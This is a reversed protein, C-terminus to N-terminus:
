GSVAVLNIGIIEQISDLLESEQYPKGLYQNVGIERARERHKDGTRSTIMIIPVHCLREDNRMHTALEFGDMRPMEIDLLVMDPLTEQLQGMADVGDKATLVQYGNRELLRSTVKRVTISDDVVMVLLRSDTQPSFGPDAPQARRNMRSVAVMDLILVVRGDGLITAGSVGEVSSFQTGLPKIVVERNGLLSEVQMGIRQDGIRLLLVPVQQRMHQLNMGGTGLLTGLHKLRYENGAYEFRQGESQYCVILEEPFVRVVGEISALPVFFAEEGATVLLAQNIALTYPLRVTFVAGKGAESEIHLSGGLQKVESNVVDMGVGRGSIQTVEGATSFGTTLIFQMVEHDTLGADASMLGREIARERIMALNLGAGDDSLRLIIEPGERDFDIHITGAEPKDNRVRQEPYEIGHAIANRLMHELPAVFRDAVSRDIEGDAGHLELEVKKNLERATQRVIRRLRPALGAFPVMRTRILSEQLDTNVRSQQLLLTEADRTTQEMIEQLSQLDSISEILSRSLQQLNSYRDMELPDFGENRGDSEQEFRYLIQAETEMELQRLQDRLRSITTDLEGLSFRYNSVQQEMRSRYISIEGANSVLNDLVEAQVRVQEARGQKGIAQSDTRSHHAVDRAAIESFAPFEPSAAVFLPRVVVTDEAYAADAADVADADVSVRVAATTIEPDASEEPDVETAVAEETPTIQVEVVDIGVGTLTADADGQMFLQLRQELGTAAETPLRSKVRDLMEALRDSAENLLAFLEASTDTVGDAVQGLLSEVVHSLDGITKIDVMRAGGKLTHLLRQFETMLGRNEPAASWDRLVNEGSEMIESAEEVFIEYLEPDLGAYADLADATQDTDQLVVDHMLVVPSDAPMDHVVTEQEAYIDEVEDQTQSLSYPSGAEPGAIVEPAYAIEPEAPKNGAIEHQMGSDAEVMEAAPVTSGTMDGVRAALGHIRGQLQAVVWEDFSLLPLQAHMRQMEHVCDDLAAFAAPVAPLNDHYLRGFYEYLPEALAGIGPVQASESIGTLTHLARFLQESVACSEGAEALCGSLVRLHEGCETVFLDLLESDPEEVDVAQTASSQATEHRESASLEHGSALRAAQTLLGDIDQAPTTGSRIQELMETLANPVRTLFISMAATHELVGDLLRNMLVELQWALEGIQMAGAMRGSGKLTHFSRRVDVLLQQDQPESIWSAISIRLTLLEEGAEELFIEVIEPDAEAALAPLGSLMSTTETAPTEDDASNADSDPIVDVMYEQDLPAAPVAGSALAVAQQALHDVNIDPLRSADSVQAVLQRLAPVSQEVLDLVLASVPVAQEITRNILQEFAWGFEGTALAGIMRGSGKITHFGRRVASLIDADDPSNRWDPIVASFEDLVEGAEEIFIEVIEPDADAAVVQLSSITELQGHEPVTPETWAVVPEPVPEPEAVPEDGCSDPIDVPEVEGASEAPTDIHWAEALSDFEDDATDSENEDSSTISVPYGLKGLSKAAVHLARDGYKQNGALQEVCYEISCIADAMDDLEEGNLDRHEALLERTIFRKVQSTAAALPEEGSLLLGGHIKHLLVPVNALLEFNGSSKLFGNISEKAEQMDTMVAEIVAERGQAFTVKGQDNSGDSELSGSIDVLADEVAVLTGAIAAFDVDEASCSGDHLRRLLQEQVTVAAAHQDMGIMGLMNGLAHLESAVQGIVDPQPDPEQLCSDLQEKIRDIDERATLSVTHLLEDSLEAPEDEQASSPEPLEYTKRILSIRASATSAHSIQFLLNKLLDDTLLDSFVSEGYDMLRKINRDLQGFQRKLVASEQLAGDRLLEAVGAGVWWLRAAPESCAIGQLYELADLLEDVGQNDQGGRYWELLGAQFRVRATRANAALESEDHWARVDFVDSPVRRSLNPSFIAEERLPELGRTARLSNIVPFMAMPMDRRGSRLSSLYEPLELFGQMLFELLTDKDTVTGLLLDAIAEEMECALLDAGKLSVMRLPGRAQHLQAACRQLLENSANGDAYSELELRAQRLTEGLEKRVWSLANYDIADHM